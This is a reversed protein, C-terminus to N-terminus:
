SQNCSSAITREHDRDPVVSGRLLRAGGLINSQTKLTATAFMRPDGYDIGRVSINMCSVLFHTRRTIRRLCLDFLQLLSRLQGSGLNAIQLIAVQSKSPGRELKSRDFHVLAPSKPRWLGEASYMQGDGM